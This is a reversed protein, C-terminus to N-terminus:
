GPLGVADPRLSDWTSEIREPSGDCHCAQSPFVIDLPWYVKVDGKLASWPAIVSCLGRFLQFISDWVLSPPQLKPTLRAAFDRSLLHNIRSRQCSQVASPLSPSAAHFSTSRIRKMHPKIQYLIQVNM